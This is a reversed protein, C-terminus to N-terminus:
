MHNNINDNNHTEQASMMALQQGLEPVVVLMVKDNNNRNNMNYYTNTYTNTNTNTNM